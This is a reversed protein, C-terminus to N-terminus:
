DSFANNIHSKRLTNKLSFMFTIIYKYLYLFVLTFQIDVTNNNMYLVYM